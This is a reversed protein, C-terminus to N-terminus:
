LCLAYHRVNDEEKIFEFGASEFSKQSSLNEPKIEAKILKHDPFSRRFSEIAQTLCAKGFGKGRMSPALNISIEASEAEIDLRVVGVKSNTEQEICVLLRRNDNSLAAEFWRSHGGWTVLDSNHSMHRTHDDNRWEFIDKSDSLTAPRVDIM